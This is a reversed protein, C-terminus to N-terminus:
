NFRRKSSKNSDRRDFKRKNSNDRSDGRSDNRSNDRDRSNRNGSSKGRFNDSRSGRSRSEYRSGRAPERRSSDRSDRRSDGRSNNRGRSNNGRFSDRDGSNNRSDRGRSENRSNNRGRFDGNRSNERGRSSKDQSNRDRSGRDQSGRDQSGRNDRNNNRSNNRDRNDNRYNSNSNNHSNNRSSSDSNSRQGSQGMVRAMVVRKQDKKEKYTYPVHIKKKTKPDMGTYYMCTSVSMPTPTFVQVHEANKLKSIRNGLEKAEKMGSGPHATMFYFSLRNVDSIKSFEKIFNDVDGRDKNMLKLINKDFHEPAVRLTDYVHHDSIEKILEPSALDFRVGSRINVKAIGEVKRANRLLSLLRKNTKASDKATNCDICPKGVTGFQKGDEETKDNCSEKSRCDMGYMNISPATLDDIQGFFGPMKGIRKMEELISKESRSVIRDGGTLSLSCFSCNGICGRHTVVSFEFGRLERPVQRTFPLSYYSDLDKSTYIPSKYQLVYRQELKQALNKNNTLMNQMDCFREKAKQEDEGMLEEHTPLEIFESEKFSEPLERSVVCTGEIGNLEKGEKIRNAIEIIQKESSGYAMIDARSEFMISRRLRNQWYDFHTFRRLTAETGGIVIKSGKYNARIWNCYVLVARDPVTENYDLNEDDQRLKKLPTYNRVMSDISGSSVAFFLRPKGLKNIDGERTPKEIIGVSYGDRELVRRLLATGSLPHDFYQEGVVFIIDYEM